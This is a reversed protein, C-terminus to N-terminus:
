IYLQSIEAEPYFLALIQESSYGSKALFIAGNISLGQNDGQGKCHFYFLDDQYQVSIASSPLNFKEQLTDGSIPTSCFEISELTGSKNYLANDFWKSCDAPARVANMIQWVEERTFAIRSRYGEADIDCLLSVSPSHRSENTKGTSIKCLPSNFLSGNITLVGAEQVATALKANLDANGNDPTYPFDRNVVFNAGLQESFRGNEQLHHVIRTKQVTCIARLAEEPPNEGIPLLGRVCGTLFEDCSIFIVAEKEPLLVSVQAPLFKQEPRPRTIVLIAILGALLILSILSAISVKKPM